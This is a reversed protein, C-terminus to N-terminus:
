GSGTGAPGCGDADPAAGGGPTVAGTTLAEVMGAMVAADLVMCGTAEGTGEDLAAILAMDPLMEVVEALTRRAVKLDSLQLSAAMEDRAARALALTWAKEVAAVDAADTETRVGTMRLLAM